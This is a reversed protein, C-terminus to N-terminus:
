PSPWVAVSIVQRSTSIRMQQKESLPYVRDVVPTIKGADLLDKLSGPVRSAGKCRCRRIGIERM